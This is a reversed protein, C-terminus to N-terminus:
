QKKIKATRRTMSNYVHTDIKHLIRIPHKLPSSDRVTAMRCQGAVRWMLSRGFVQVLVAEELIPAYKGPRELGLILM